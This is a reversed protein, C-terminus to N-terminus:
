PSPQQARRGWGEAGQGWPRAPGSRARSAPAHAGSAPLSAWRRLPGRTGLSGRSPARPSHAAGRGPPTLRFHHEAGLHILSVGHLSAPQPDSASFNAVAAWLAAPQGEVRPLRGPCPPPPSARGRPLGSSLGGPWPAPHAPWPTGGPRAPRRGGQAGQKGPCALGGQSAAISLRRGPSRASPGSSGACCRCAQHVQPSSSAARGPGPGPGPGPRLYPWPQPPCTGASPWQAPQM